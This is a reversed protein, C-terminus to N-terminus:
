TKQRFTYTFTAVGDRQDVPDLELGDLATVVCTALGESV